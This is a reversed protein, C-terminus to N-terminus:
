NSSVAPATEVPPEEAWDERIIAFSDEKFRAHITKQGHDSHEESKYDQTARVVVQDQNVIILPESMKVEIQARRERITKKFKYWQKYNMKGNHFTDDYYKIYTDVDNNQWSNRWEEFADLYKKRRENYEPFSLYSVKEAIVMPTQGLQIYESIKKIVDNRVVVCGRSGRTLAVSDPVAHLWIGNGTKHERQDFINPYDTTFAMQGYLKYPIAPQSLKKQLFYIGVPTKHDNQKTKEGQNKGIDTPYEAVILPGQETSKYIKLTRQSKDVVIAFKSEYANKATPLSILSEPILKEVVPNEAPPSTATGTASAALPLIFISIFISKIRM